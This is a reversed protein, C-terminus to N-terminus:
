SLSFFDRAIGTGVTVGGSRRVGGAFEADSWWWVRKVWGRGQFCLATFM